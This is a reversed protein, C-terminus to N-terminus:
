WTAIFIDKATVITTHLKVKHGKIQLKVNKFDMIEKILYSIM